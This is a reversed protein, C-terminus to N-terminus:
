MKVSRNEPPIRAARAPMPNARATVNVGSLPLFRSRLTPYKHPKPNQVPKPKPGRKSITMRMLGDIMVVAINAVLRMKAQKLRQVM